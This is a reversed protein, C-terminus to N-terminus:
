GNTPRCLFACSFVSKQRCHLQYCMSWRAVAVSRSLVGVMMERIGLPRQHSSFSCGRHSRRLPKKKFGNSLDYEIAAADASFGFM